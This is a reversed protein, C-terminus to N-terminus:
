KWLTSVPRIARIGPTFSPVKGAAQNTDIRAIERELYPFRRLVRLSIGGGCPKNRPFVSRDLSCIALIRDSWRREALEFMGSSSGLSPDTVFEGSLRTLVWDGLMGVRACLRAVM